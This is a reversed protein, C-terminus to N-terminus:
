QRVRAMMQSATTARRSGDERQTREIAALNAEYRAMAEAAEPALTRPEPSRLYAEVVGLEQPSLLAYAAVKMQLALNGPPPLLEELRALRRSLAVKM